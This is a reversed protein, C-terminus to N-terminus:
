IDQVLERLSSLAIEFPVPPGSVLDTVFSQYIERLNTIGVLEEFSRKLYGSTDVVLEEPYASKFRSSDEDVAAFIAAHFNKTNFYSKKLQHLDYIHRVLRDDTGAQIEKVNRLLGVIKEGGTQSPDVCQIQFDYPSEIGTDRYLLTSITRLQPDISLLSCTFEIQINSRLSALSDFVSEYGLNFNFYRRSDRTEEGEITFGEAELTTKVSDRFLGLETRNLDKANQNKSIIKFDLDESMRNIISFGKILSTGGGFIPQLLNSHYVPNSKVTQLVETLLIDKELAAPPFDTLGENSAAVILDAQKQSIRKM